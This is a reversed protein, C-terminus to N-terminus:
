GRAPARRPAAPQAAPAAEASGNQRLRDAVIGAAALLEALNARQSSLLQRREADLSEWEARLAATEPPWRRARYLLLALPAAVALTWGLTQAGALVFVLGVLFSWFAVSRLLKRPSAIAAAREARAASGSYAPVAKLVPEYRTLFEVLARRATAADSDAARRFASIAGSWDQATLQLNGKLVLADAYAPRLLLAREVRDRASAAAPSRGAAALREYVVALQFQIHANEPTLRAAQALEDVSEELLGLNFYALGLGYHAEADYPDRRVRVRFRGIREEIVARNLLAPDLRPLDTRIAVLSGCYACRSADASLPAACVPCSLIVVSAM